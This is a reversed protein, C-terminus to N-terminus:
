IYKVSPTDSVQGDNDVPGDHSQWQRCLNGWGDYNYVIQNLVHGSTRLAPDDYSTVTEVRGVHDYGKVVAQVATDV